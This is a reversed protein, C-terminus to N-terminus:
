PAVRQRRIRGPRRCPLKRANDRTSDGASRGREGDLPRSSWKRVLLKSRRAAVESHGGSPSGVITASGARDAAVGSRTRGRSTSDSAPRGGEGDPPGSVVTSHRAEVQSNGGELRRKPPAGAASGARAEAVCFGRVDDRDLDSASRGREGNSPGFVLKWRSTQGALQQRGAVKQTANYCCVRSSGRHRPLGSPSSAARSVIAALTATLQLRAFCAIRVHDSQVVLSSVIALTSTARLGRTEVVPDRFLQHADAAGDESFQGRRLRRSLGVGNSEDAYVRLCGFPDQGDEM